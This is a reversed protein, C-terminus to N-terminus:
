ATHGALQPDGRIQQQYATILANAQDSTFNENVPAFVTFIQKSVLTTDYGCAKVVSAFNSLDPNSSIAEWLTGEGTAAADYHDDWKDTCGIFALAIIVAGLVKTCINRHKMIINKKM